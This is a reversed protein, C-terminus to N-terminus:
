KYLGILGLQFVSFVNCVSTFVLVAILLIGSSVSNVFYTYVRQSLVAPLDVTLHAGKASMHYLRYRLLRRNIYFSGSLTLFVDSLTIVDSSLTIFKSGSLTIFKTQYYLLSATQYHLFSSKITKYHLLKRRIIYDRVYKAYSTTTTTAKMNVVLNM